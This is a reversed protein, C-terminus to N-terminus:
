AERHQVMLQGPVKEKEKEGPQRHGIGRRPGEDELLNLREEQREIERTHM